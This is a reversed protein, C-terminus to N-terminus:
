KARKIRVPVKKYGYVVGVDPAFEVGEEILDYDPIRKIVEELCIKIEMRALNSGMCRHSGVGFTMHRNDERGFIVKDANKFESEDRNASAWCMMVLDGKKMKVGSVEVDETVRRALAQQPAFIRLFEETADAILDPNDILEQRRDPNRGLYLFASGLLAQTTDVGGDLLLEIIAVIEWQELPRGDIQVTYLHEILGGKVPKDKQLRVQEKVLNTVGLRAQFLEMPEGDGWITKHIPDAYDRWQELPLGGLRLTMIATVPQALDQVLDGEGKEIIADM